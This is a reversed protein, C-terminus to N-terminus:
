EDRTSLNAIGRITEFERAKAVWEEARSVVTHEYKATVLIEGDVFAVGDDFAIGPTSYVVRRYTVTKEMGNETAFEERADEPITTSIRLTIADFDVERSEVYEIEVDEEVNPNAADLVMDEFGLDDKCGEYGGGSWGDFTGDFAVYDSGYVIEFTDKVVCRFQVSARM